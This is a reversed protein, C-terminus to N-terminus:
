KKGKKNNTFGAVRSNRKADVYAGHGKDVITDMSERTFLPFILFRFISWVTIVILGISLMNVNPIPEFELVLEFVRKFADFFFEM